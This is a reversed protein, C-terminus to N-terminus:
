QQRVFYTQDGAQALLLTEAARQGDQNMVFM